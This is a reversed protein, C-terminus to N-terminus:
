QYIVNNHLIWGDVHIGEPDHHTWHIVGGKENWEYEGLFEIQDNLSLADIRPSLDINHSILLTQKSELEIIFRQHRSGDLDDSLISIVTGTGYVQVNSQGDAFLKELLEDGDPELAVFDSIAGAKLLGNFVDGYAYVEGGKTGIYNGTDSYYRVLYDNFGVTTM